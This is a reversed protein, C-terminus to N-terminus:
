LPLEDSMTFPLDSDEDLETFDTVTQREPMDGVWPPLKEAQKPTLFWKVKLYGKEDTDFNAAGMAGIWEVSNFNGRDIGFSDFFNTMNRNFYENKVIYTKVKAKSGNPTVTIVWMPLGSSKSTTEEAGVVACRLEGTKVSPAEPKYDDWNSM